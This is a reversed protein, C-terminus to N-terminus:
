FIKNPNWKYAVCPPDGTNVFGYLLTNKIYISAQTGYESNM